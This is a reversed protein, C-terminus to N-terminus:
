LQQPEGKATLHKGPVDAMIPVPTAKFHQRASKSPLIVRPAQTKSGQGRSHSLLAAKRKRGGREERRLALKKTGVRTQAEYASYRDGTLTQFAKALPPFVYSALQSAALHRM